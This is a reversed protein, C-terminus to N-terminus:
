SSISSYASERMELASTSGTINAIRATKEDSQTCGKAAAPQAPSTAAALTPTTSAERRKLREGNSCNMALRHVAVNM